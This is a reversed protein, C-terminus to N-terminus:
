ERYVTIIVLKGTISLKGVLGLQHGHVSKGLVVYKWEGINQDAQRETIQGTLIAREVDFITFADDNMEEEAHLTMVYQRTRIRERM